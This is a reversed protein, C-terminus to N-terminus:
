AFLLALALGVFGSLIVSGASRIAGSHNNGGSGSNGSTNSSEPSKVALSSQPLDQVAEVPQTGLKGSGVMIMQGMSPVGNVVVFILAPGPPFVAPNPPLQSVHLTGSNDQNGTYSSQLEIYRQGM